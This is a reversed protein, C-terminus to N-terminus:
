EPPPLPIEFLVHASAFAVNAHASHVIDKKVWDPIAVLELSAVADTWMNILLSLEDATIIPAAM